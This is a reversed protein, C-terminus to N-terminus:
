RRCATVLTGRLLQQQRRSPHVAGIAAVVSPQPFWSGLFVNDPVREYAELVRRCQDPFRAPIAAFVDIMREILHTDIAGLSGFSMYILPGDEVPFSRRISGPRAACAFAKSFSSNRSASRNSASMACGRDTRSRSQSRQLNRSFQGSAPPRSRAGQSFSNYRRHAADTAKLYAKEFRRCAAKDGPELGSLYPPVQADPLETEACSVVRVWPCGARIIAPFM